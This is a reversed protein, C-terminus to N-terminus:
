PDCERWSQSSGVLPEWVARLGEGAILRQNMGMKVKGVDQVQVCRVSAVVVAAGASSVSAASAAVAAAAAAAPAAGATVIVARHM